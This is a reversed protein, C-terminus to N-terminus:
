EGEKGARIAADVAADFAHNTTMNSQDDPCRLGRIEFFPGRQWIADRLWRYRAADGADRERQEQQIRHVFAAIQAESIIFDSHGLLKRAGCERAILLIDKM